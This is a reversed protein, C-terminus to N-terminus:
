RTSRTTHKECYPARPRTAAGCFLGAGTPYRCCHDGLESMLVGDSGSMEVEIRAVTEVARRLNEAHPRKRTAYRSYFGSM